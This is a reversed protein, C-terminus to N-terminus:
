INCILNRNYIPTNSAPLITRSDSDIVARTGFYYGQLLQLSSAFKGEEKRKRSVVVNDDKFHMRAANRVRRFIGM